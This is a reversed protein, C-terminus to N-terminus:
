ALSRPTTETMLEPNEFKNGIVEAEALNLVDLIMHSRRTEDRIVHRRMVKFGSGIWEVESAEDAIKLIDGEYIEVGSKDRLGTFQMVSVDPDDQQGFSFMGDSRLSFWDYKGIGRM